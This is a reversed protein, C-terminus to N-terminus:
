DLDAILRAIAMGSLADRTTRIADRWPMLALRGESAKIAALHEAALEFAFVSTGENEGNLQFFARNGVFGRGQIPAPNTLMSAEDPELMERIAGTLKPEGNDVFGGPLEWDDEDGVLNFRPARLMMVHYDAGGAGFDTPSVVAPDDLPWVIWGVVLSGGGNNEHFLWQDWCKGPVMGVELQGFQGNIIFHHGEDTVTWGPVTGAQYDDLMPEVLKVQTNSM